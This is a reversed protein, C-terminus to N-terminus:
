PARKKLEAELVRLAVLVMEVQSVAKTPDTALMAEAMELAAQMEQLRMFIAQAQGQSIAQANYLNALLNVTVVIQGYGMVVTDQPSKPAEVRYMGAMDACGTLAVPSAVSAGILLAALLKKISNM